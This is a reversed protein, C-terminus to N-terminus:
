HHTVTVYRDGALITSRKTVGAPLGDGKATVGREGVGMRGEKVDRSVLMSNKLTMTKHCM